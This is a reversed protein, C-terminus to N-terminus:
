SQTPCDTERCVLSELDLLIITQVIKFLTVRDGKGLAGELFAVHELVPGIASIENFPFSTKYRVEGKRRWVGFSRLLCM